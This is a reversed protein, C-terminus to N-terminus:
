SPNIADLEANRKSAAIQDVIETLQCVPINYGSAPKHSPATVPLQAHHHRRDNPLRGSPLAM